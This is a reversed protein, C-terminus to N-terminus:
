ASGRGKKKNLTGRYDEEKLKDCIIRVEQVTNDVGRAMIVGRDDPITWFKMALKTLWSM